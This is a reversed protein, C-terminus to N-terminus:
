RVGYYMIRSGMVVLMVVTIDVCLRCGAYMRQLASPVM